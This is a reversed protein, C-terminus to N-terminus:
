HFVRAKSKEEFLFRSMLLVLSASVRIGQLLEFPWEIGWLNHFSSGLNDTWLLNGWKEIILLDFNMCIFWIESSFKRFLTLFRILCIEILDKLSLGLYQCSSLTWISWDGTRSEKIWSASEWTRATMLIVLCQPSFWGLVWSIASGGKRSYHGLTQDVM